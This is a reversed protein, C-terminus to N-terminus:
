KRLLGAPIPMPFAEFVVGFAEELVSLELAAATFDEAISLGCRLVVVRDAVAAAFALDHTALLVARGSGVISRVAAAVALTHAPDLMATPEDLVLLPAEQAVCRALRVLQLEGGSLETVPRQALHGVGLTELAAFAVATDDQSPQAFPSRRHARAFLTFEVCSFDFAVRETQPLVAVKAARQAPPLAGAPHGELLARGASPELRGSAVGLLTSKGSGNPGVVACITGAELRLSVGNLAPSTSGPYRHAVDELLLPTM